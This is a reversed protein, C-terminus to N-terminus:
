CFISSIKIETFHVTIRIIGVYQLLTSEVLASLTIKSFYLTLHNLYQELNMLIVLFKILRSIYPMDLLKYLKTTNKGTM